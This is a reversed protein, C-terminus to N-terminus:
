SRIPCGRSGLPAVKVSPGEGDVDGVRRTGDFSQGYLPQSKTGPTLVGITRRQGTPLNVFEKSECHFTGAPKHRMREAIRYLMGTRTEQTVRNLRLVRRNSMRCSSASDLEQIAGCRNIGSAPPPNRNALPRVNTDRHRGNPAVSPLASSQRRPVWNLAQVYDGLPFRRNDRTVAM